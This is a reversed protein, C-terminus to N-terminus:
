KLKPKEPKSIEASLINANDQIQHFWIANM